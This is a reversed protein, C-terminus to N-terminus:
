KKSIKKSKKGKKQWTGNHPGAIYKIVTKLSDRSLKMRERLMEESLLSSAEEMEIVIIPKVDDGYSSQKLYKTIKSVKTKTTPRIIEYEENFYNIIGDAPVPPEYGMLQSLETDHNNWETYAADYKKQAALAEESHMGHEEQADLNAKQLKTMTHNLKKVKKALKLKKSRGTSEPAAAILDTTSLNHLHIGVLKENHPHLKLIVSVRSESSLGTFSYATAPNASFGSPPLEVEKGVEFAEMFKAVDEKYLSMGRHLPTKTHVVAPNKPDTAIENILSFADARDHATMESQGDSQWDFQISHFRKLKDISLNTRWNQHQEHADSQIDAKEKVAKKDYRDDLSYNPEYLSKQIEPDHVGSKFVKIESGDATTFVKKLETPLNERVAIMPQTKTFIKSMKGRVAHAGLYKGVTRRILTIEKTSVGKAKLKALVKKLDEIHTKRFSPAADYEIGQLSIIKILDDLADRDEDVFEEDKKIGAKLKGKNIDIIDEASKLVHEYKIYEEYAQRAKKTIEEHASHWKKWKPSSTGVSGGPQKEESADMEAMADLMPQKLAPAKKKAVKLKKTEEVIEAKLKKEWEVEAISYASEPWIDDSKPKNGVMRDVREIFDIAQEESAKKLASVKIGNLLKLDQWEARHRVLTPNEKVPEKTIAPEDKKSDRAAAEKGSVAVLEGKVSKAVTKGKDDEWYGFGSYKLGKAKAQKATESEERLLINETLKHFKKALLKTRRELMKVTLDRAKGKWNPIEKKVLADWGGATEHLDLINQIQKKARKGLADANKYGAKRFVSSYSYNIDPNTLSDWEGIKMLLDHHKFKGQARFLFAGGNDIRSARTNGDEEHVMINDNELGVSDWNAMLVDAAFGDLIRNATEKSRKADYEEANSIVESAYAVGGGTEFTSPTPADIGLLQYIRTSLHETYAQNPDDYMKVYRTKGDSGKYFVGTNTGKPGGIKKHTVNLKKETPPKDTKTPSVKVLKGGETKAVVTNSDDVWRGFGISKLGLKKAKEAPKL